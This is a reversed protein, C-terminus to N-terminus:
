SAIKLLATRRVGSASNLVLRMLQKTLVDTAHNGVPEHSANASIVSLELVQRLLQGQMQHNM